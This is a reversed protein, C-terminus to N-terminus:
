RVTLTRAGTLVARHDADAPSYGRVLYKGAPLRFRAWYYSSGSDRDSISATYSKTKLVWRGGSRKYLWFKVPSTGRAAHKPKLVGRIRFSRNAKPSSVPAPTSMYPKPVITVWQSVAAAAYGRKASSFRYHTKRSSAITTRYKGGWLNEVVANTVPAFNVGDTSSQLSVVAGDVPAGAYSALTAEISIQQMYGDTPMGPRATVLKPNSWTSVNSHAQIAIPTSATVQEYWDDYVVFRVWAPQTHTVAFTAEYEGVWVNDVPVESSWDHWTVRDTSWELQVDMNDLPVGSQVEYLTTQITVPEGVYPTATSGPAVRSAGFIVMWSYDFPEMWPSVEVRDPRVVAVSTALAEEDEYEWWQPWYHNGPDSFHLHYTAPPLGEFAYRGRSDTVAVQTTGDPVHLEARIFSIPLGTFDNRVVGQITAPSTLQMSGLQPTGENWAPLVDTATQLSSGGHWVAAHMEHPDVFRLRVPAQDPFELRWNSDSDATLTTEIAWEGGDDRRWVEVMAGSIPVDFRDSRVSGTIWPDRRVLVSDATVRGPLSVVVPQVLSQPEHRGIPDAFSVYYTSPGLDKFEYSGDGATTTTAVTYEADGLVRRLTAVIGSAPVGASGSGVTGGISAPSTLELTAVVVRSSGRLPTVDAATDVSDGGNWRQSHMGVPDKFLVRMPVTSDTSYAWAGSDDATLTAERAWGGTGPRWLEVQAGAIPVGGFSSTVTGSLGAPIVTLTDEVSVGASDTVEVRTAAAYTAASRYYSARYNGADDVFYLKYPSKGLGDFRFSGDSATRTQELRPLSGSDLYISVAIGELPSGGNSGQLTGSVSGPHTLTTTIDVTPVTGTRAPVVGQATQTTEGGYWVPDHMGGPDTVRIALTEGTDTVYDFTGGVGTKVSGRLTPEPVGDVSWFEITADAIPQNQFSSRVSGRVRYPLFTLEASVSETAASAIRVPTAYDVTPKDAFYEATHAGSPDVFGLRYRAGALGSFSYGGDAGTTTSALASPTASDRYLTVVAGQVPRDMWSSKITGNIGGTLLVPLVADASPPANRSPTFTSATELSTGGIWASGHMGSPDSVRIRIGAASSATYQWGGGPGSYQVSDLVWTVGSQRYFEVRAGEVALGHSESFVSGRVLPKLNVARVGGIVTSYLVSNDRPIALRAFAFPTAGWVSYGGFTTEMDYNALPAWTISSYATIASGNNTPMYLVDDTPSFKGGRPTGVTAVRSFGADYVYMSGVPIAILTGDRSTTVEYNFAGTGADWERRDLQGDTVRYRGWRGDSINTEAFGIITRDGSAALATNQRVSALNDVSGTGPDYRRLPTWGSGSLESTVLLRGDYGFAVMWTGTEGFAKIFTVQRTSGSDLDVLRIWNTGDGWAEGTYSRDAVALTSGDPSIDMGAVSGGVVVPSLYAKAAPDYRLVRDGQGIYLLERTNDYVIDARNPVSIFSGEASAQQPSATWAGVLLIFACVVGFM